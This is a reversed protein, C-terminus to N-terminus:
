KQKEFLSIKLALEHTQVGISNLIDIPFETNYAIYVKKSLPVGLRAGYSSKSRYIVGIDLKQQLSALLNVDWSLPVSSALRLMGSPSLQIGDSVRYKTGVQLYYYAVDKFAGSLGGFDYTLVRPQSLSIFSGDRHYFHIGWGTNPKLGTSKNVQIVPDNVDIATLGAYDIYLSSVSLRLGGNMNWDENLKVVYSGDLSVNTMRLPGAQDSALLGAIGIKPKLQYNGTLISTRPSGQVGIWQQRNIAVFEGKAERSIVGAYAPSSILANVPYMSYMVEVQASACFSIVLIIAVIIKRM